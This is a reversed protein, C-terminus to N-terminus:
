QELPNPLVFVMADMLENVGIDQEASTYVLPLIKRQLVAERLGDWLKDPEILETDELYAVLLDDDTMAVAEVLAMWAEDLGEDHTNRRATGTMEDIVFLPKVGVFDDDQEFVPGQLPIPKIGDFCEELDQLVSEVQVFPRDM